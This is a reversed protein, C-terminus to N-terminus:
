EILTAVLYGHSADNGASVQGQTQTEIDLIRLVIRKSDASIFGELDTESDKLHIRGNGCAQQSLPLDKSSDYIESKRRLDFSDPVTNLRITQNNVLVTPVGGADFSLVGNLVNGSVAGNTDVSYEVGQLRYQKSNINCSASTDIAIGINQNHFNSQIAAGAGFDTSGLSGNSTINAAMFLGDNSVVGQLRGVFGSNLVGAPFSTANFQPSNNELSVAISNADAIPSEASNQLQPSAAEYYNEASQFLVADGNYYSKLPGLPVTQLQGSGSDGQRKFSFGSASRSQTTWQQLASRITQGYLEDSGLEISIMGYTNKVQATDFSAPNKQFVVLEATIDRALLQGYDPQDNVKAYVAGPVVSTSLYTGPVVRYLNLNRAFEVEIDNLGAETYFDDPIQVSITGQADVKGALAGQSNDSEGAPLNTYIESRPVESEVIQPDLQIKQGAIYRQETTWEQYTGNEAILLEASTNPKASVDFGNSRSIDFDYEMQDHSTSPNWLSYDVRTNFVSYNGVVSTNVGAAAKVVVRLRATDANGANSQDSVRFRFVLEGAVAPATFSAQASSDNALQVSIGSEQVWQYNVTMGDPIDASGSLVVQAGANVSQNAGPLAVPPNFDTVGEAPQSNAAAQDTEIDDGLATQGVQDAIAAAAALVEEIDIQQNDGSKENWRLQGSNAIYNQAFTALVEAVSQGRADAIQALAATLAGYRTAQDNDVAASDNVSTPETIVIDVDGDLGFMLRVRNNANRIRTETPGQDRVYQAAIHTLSSVNATFVQEGFESTNLRPIVATMVFDSPLNFQEGFPITSTDIDSISDELDQTGDCGTASDCVMKAGSRYSVRVSAPGDYPTDAIALLDYRGNSDTSGTAFAEMETNGDVIRFLEVKANRVNGKVALGTLSVREVEITEPQDSNADNDRDNSNDDDSGGGSGSSCATLALLFAAVLASKPYANM